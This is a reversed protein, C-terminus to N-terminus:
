FFYIVFNSSGGAIHVKILVNNQSGELNGQWFKTSNFRKKFFDHDPKNQKNSM